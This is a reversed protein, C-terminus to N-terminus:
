KVALTKRPIIRKPKGGVDLVLINKNDERKKNPELIILTNIILIDFNVSFLNLWPAVAFRM